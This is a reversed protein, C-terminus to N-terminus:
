ELIEMDAYAINLRERNHMAFLSTLSEALYGLYRDNREILSSYYNDIWGLISFLYEAYEDFLNRRMVFMNCQCIMHQQEFEIFSNYYDPRVEKVAQRLIDWDLKKVAGKNFHRSFSEVYTPEMLVMDIGKASLSQLQEETISLRRRYHRLGIYDVEKAWHNKWAWYLATCECYNGNKESINEGIDDSLDCMKIDTFKKGCQIPKLFTSRINKLNNKDKHCCAVLVQISNKSKFTDKKESIVEYKGYYKEFEQLYDFEDNKNLLALKSILENDLLVRFHRKLLDSKKIIVKYGLEVKLSDDVVYNVNIRANFIMDRMCLIHELSGHFIKIQEESINFEKLQLSIESSNNKCAVIYVHEKYSKVCHIPSYIPIDYLQKEWLESNNDCFGSIRYGRVKLYQFLFRGWMGCGFIIIPNEYQIDLNIKNSM